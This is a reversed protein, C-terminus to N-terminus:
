VQPAQCDKIGSHVNRTEEKNNKNKKNPLKKKKKVKSVERLLDCPCTTEKLQAKENTSILINSLKVVKHLDFKHARFITSSFQSKELEM